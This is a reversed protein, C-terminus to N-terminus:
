KRSLQIQLGTTLQNDLFQFTPPLSGYEYKLSVGIGVVPNYVLNLMAYHRPKTTYFENGANVYAQKFPESLFPSRVTYHGDFQIHPATDSPQCPTSGKTCYFFANWYYDITAVSRLVPYNATTTTTTKVISRSVSKGYETGLTMSIDDLLRKPSGYIRPVFTVSDSWILNANKKYYPQLQPKGNVLVAQQKAKREFQYGILDVSVIFGDLGSSMPKVWSYTSHIISSDPDLNPSQSAKSSVSPTIAQRGSLFLPYSAAIDWNYQPTASIASQTGFSIRIDANKPDSVLQLGFRSKTQTGPTTAPSVEFNGSKVHLEAISVKQALPLPTGLILLASVTDSQPINGNCIYQLVVKRVVIPSNKYTVQWNSPVAIFRRIADFTSSQPIQTVEVTIIRTGDIPVDSEQASQCNVDPYTFSFYKDSPAVPTRNGTLDYTVSKAKLQSLPSDQASCLSPSGTLLLGLLLFNSSRNCRPSFPM